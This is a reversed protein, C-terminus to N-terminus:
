SDSSMLLENISVLLSSTREILINSLHRLQRCSSHAAFLQNAASINAHWRQVTPYVQSRLHTQLNNFTQMVLEVDIDHEKSSTSTSTFPFIPATDHVEDDEVWAIDITDDSETENSSVDQVDVEEAPRKKNLRDTAKVELEHLPESFASPQQSTLVRDLFRLTSVLGSTSRSQEIKESAPMDKLAPERMFGHITHATSSNGYHKALRNCDTLARCATQYTMMNAKMEAVCKQYSSFVQRNEATNLQEIMQSISLDGSPLRM